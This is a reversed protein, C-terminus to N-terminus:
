PTNGVQCKVYLAVATASVSMVQAKHVPEVHPVEAPMHQTRESPNRCDEVCDTTSTLRTRFVAVKQRCATFTGAGGLM